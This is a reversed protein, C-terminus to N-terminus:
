IDGCCRANAFFLIGTVIEVPNSVIANQPVESVRQKELAATSVYFLKL